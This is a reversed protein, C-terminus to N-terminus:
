PYIKSFFRKCKATDIASGGGISVIFDCHEKEFVYIGAMIEHYGTVMVSRGSAVVDLLVNEEFVLDGHLLLVDDDLLLDRALRISYIYPKLTLLKRLKALRLDPTTMAGTLQRSLRNGSIDKTYPVEILEGGWESLVEIVRQRIVQMYGVRWEDGHVVYDPKLQRLTETYDLREQVVVRDVNRFSAAVKVRESTDLFPTRKYTAIAEDTLVGVTVKGYKAAQNIINIHGSHHVDTAMAVYVQKETNM